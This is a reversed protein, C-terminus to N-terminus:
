EKLFDELTAPSAKEQFQVWSCAHNGIQTMLKWADKIIKTTDINQEKYQGNDHAIIEGKDTYFRHNYFKGKLTGNRGFICNGLIVGIVEFSGPLLIINNYLYGAERALHDSLINM